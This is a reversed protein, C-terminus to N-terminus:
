RLLDSICVDLGIHFVKLTQFRTPKYGDFDTLGQTMESKNTEKTFIKVQTTDNFTIHKGSKPIAKKWELQSQPYLSKDSLSLTYVQLQDNHKQLKLGKQHARLSYIDQLTTLKKTFRPKPTRKLASKLRTCHNSVCHECRELTCACIPPENTCRHNTTPFIEAKYAKGSRTCKITDPDTDSTDQDCENEDEQVPEPIQNQDSTEHQTKVPQNGLLQKYAKKQNPPIYKNQSM